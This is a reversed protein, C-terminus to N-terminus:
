VFLFLLKHSSFQSYIPYSLIFLNTWQLQSTFSLEVIIESIFTSLLLNYSKMLMSLSAFKSTNFHTFRTVFISFKIILM